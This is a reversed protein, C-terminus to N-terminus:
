YFDRRTKFVLPRGQRVQAIYDLCHGLHDEETSPQDESHSEVTSERAHHNMKHGGGGILKERLMMVCHLQHFMSVGYQIAASSGDEQVMLFGGNRTPLSEEWTVNVTSKSADSDGRGGDANATRSDHNLADPGYKLVSTKPDSSFFEKPALTRAQEIATPSSLQGHITHSPASPCRQLTPQWLFAYIITVSAVFTIVITTISVSKSFNTM